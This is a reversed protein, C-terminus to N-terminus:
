VVAAKAIESNVGLSHATEASSDLFERLAAPEEPAWPAFENEEIRFPGNTVEHIAAYESRVIVSHWIPADLRYVHSKGSALSGMSVLRQPQGDDSFLVIDLEGFIVHYSESKGRHRHPRILTDRHFVILMEHLLDDPSRHLCLRARKQDAEFAHRKLKGYWETGVEAVDDENYFVAIKM